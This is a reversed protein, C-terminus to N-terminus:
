REIIRDRYSTMAILIGRPTLVVGRAPVSFLEAV